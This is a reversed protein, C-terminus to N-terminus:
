KAKTGFSGRREVMPMFHRDDRGRARERQTAQIWKARWKTKGKKSYNGRAVNSQNRLKVYNAVRRGAPRATCKRCRDVLGEWM